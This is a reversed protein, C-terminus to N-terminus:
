YPLFYCLKNKNTCVKKAATKYCCIRGNNVNSYSLVLYKLANSTLKSFNRPFENM